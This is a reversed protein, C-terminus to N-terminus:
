ESHEQLWREYGSKLKSDKLTIRLEIQSCGNYTLSAIASLFQSAAEPTSFFGSVIPHESWDLASSCSIGLVKSDRPAIEALQKYTPSVQEVILKECRVPVEIYQTEVQKRIVIEGLKRKSLQVVLREAFLNISTEGIPECNDIVPSQAAEM